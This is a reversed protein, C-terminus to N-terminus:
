KIADPKVNSIYGLHLAVPLWIILDALLSDRHIGTQRAALSIAELYTTESLATLFYRQWSEIEHMNITYNKRCIAMINERKQPTSAHEGKESAKIFGILPYQLELIRLCPSIQYSSDFIDLINGTNEESGNMSELGRSRMVETKAREALALEVPLDFMNPDTNSNNNKPQSAKIFDPFSKGLEFLSPSHSPLHILYAQAFTDFLAPGLLAQLAPYDARMCDMLRLVYGRAYIHIRETASLQSNKIIRTNNLQYTQDAAAIKNDLNGPRVIISTLWKQITALDTM